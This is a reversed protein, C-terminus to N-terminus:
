WFVRHIKLQLIYLSIITCFILYLREKKKKQGLVLSPIRLKRIKRM